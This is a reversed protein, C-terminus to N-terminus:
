PSLTIQFGLSRTGPLQGMELGPVQYASFVSEPDINPATARLYLNRGVLAVVVNQFPSGPFAAPLQLALRAERLKVYTASYVWPEQIASLAHYYDQTSVHKTNAARSAADIGVILLGTDPRFATSQLTGAFSGVLNTASFVEGGMRGDFLVSASVWRYRITNQTGFSWQPQAIGLQQAGVVSDPLPLGNRLILSHTAPDRLLRRGMLVGLPLGSRAQVSMGLLSPGLAVSQVGGALQEVQSTNRAANASGLWALGADGNGVQASVTGEVGNNAVVGANKALLTGLAPNAIPLIVGSTREHYYTLSVGLDLPRITLDTGIQMGTTVEPALSSDAALLGSGLPSAIGTPTRGAYMTQISYPSADNADKWWAGRVIASSLWGSKREGALARALDASASVSPYLGSAHQAPVISSWANRLSAQLNVGNTLALESQAFVASTQSRATWAALQPLKATDPAGASPVNAISDVGLSRIRQRTTQMDAGVGVTWRGSNQLSRTADIRAAANGQRVSIEDGESGGKSFDGAGAYFPFGGMWGSSITFLRGDRYYDSGGRVTTSLWPALTYTASGGGGVHFRRSYNSDALASFYPNNHGSYSWSIQHGAADRLHNRLSDADVQRGMHTFQFVPNAELFGTGPADDHKMQSAFGSVAVTLRTIPHLSASLSGDLRGLHDDPTIGTTTRNGVFARFSGLESQAQVSANTNLTRGSSFYNRVNDPHASWLRVDARGADKYSAQALPQNDLAPGWSQDIADNIGGGKGDFFQFKGDLGQGYQNQFTPLRLFSEGTIQQSASIAFPLSGTGNKTTAIVVGNAGRGGYEAAAEAASLVRVSSISGLDIDGLPSGYDFGGMGFRQAASAFVTNDLQVGDVIFLPQNSGLISRPGRLTLLASGGLSAPSVKLGPFRGALSSALDVAGSLDGLSTNETSATAPRRGANSEPVSDPTAPREPEDGLVLDFDQVLPVGTLSITFTQSTYHVRRDSMSAAIKVSQGRVNTSTIVFSYRGDVDTTRDIKLADIRVHAGVLAKGGSSVHGSVTVARQASLIAASTAQLLAVVFVKSLRSRIM